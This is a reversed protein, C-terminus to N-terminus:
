RASAPERSPRAPQIHGCSASLYRWRSLVRVLEQVGELEMQMLYASSTELLLGSSPDAVWRQEVELLPAECLQIRTRTTANQEDSLLQCPTADVPSNSTDVPDVRALEPTVCLRMSTAGKRIGIEAKRLIKQQEPTLKKLSKEVNAMMQEIRGSDSTFRSSLEWLGPKMDAAGVATASSLLLTFLIAPICNM